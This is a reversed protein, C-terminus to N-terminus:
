SVSGYPSRTISMNRLSGMVAAVVARLAGDPRFSDQLIDIRKALLLLEIIDSHLYFYRLMPKLLTATPQTALQQRYEMIYRM